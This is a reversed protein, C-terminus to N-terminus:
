IECRPLLKKTNEKKKLVLGTENESPNEEVPYNGPVDLVKEPAGIRYLAAVTVLSMM